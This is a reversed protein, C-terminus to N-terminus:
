DLGTGIWRGIPKSVLVLVVGGILWVVSAAWRDTPPAYEPMGHGLITVSTVCGPGIAGIVAIASGMIRLLFVATKQFINMSDPKDAM